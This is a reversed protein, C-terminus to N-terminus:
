SEEKVVLSVALSNSVGATSCRAAVSVWQGPAIRIDYPTLDFVASGTCNLVTSYLATATGATMSTASTDLQCASTNANIDAYAAGTLAPSDYITLIIAGRTGDSAVSLSQLTSSLYNNSGQYTTKDFLSIVPVYSMTSITTAVEVSRQRGLVHASPGDAFAALGAVRMALVTANTANVAQAMLPGASVRLGTATSVNGFSVRHAVIYDTTSSAPTSAIGFTITNFGSGDVVIIYCNGKTPDILLGSAGTGNLKDVNFSAAPTWTDVTANRVLIGFTAGNYGFFVGNDISGMGCLQTSNAAGAAFACSAVVRIARGVGCSVYRRTTMLASSSALAATSVVACGTAYTVTGSTAVSSAVVDTNINYLFSAQALPTSGANVSLASDRTERTRIVSSEDARVSVYAGKDVRGMNLNRTLLAQTTDDVTSLADVIPAGSSVSLKSQLSFSTQLTTGNTYVVRMYKGPTALTATFPTNAVISFTKSSDAQAALNGFQVSLGSAASSQNALVSVCVSSFRSVDEWAGTFVGSSALPTSTTNYLSTNATDVVGTVPDVYAAILATLTTQQPATLASSFTVVVNVGDANTASTATAFTKKVYSLLTSCDLVSKANSYSSSM